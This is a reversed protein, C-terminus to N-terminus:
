KSGGQHTSHPTTSAAPQSIGSPRSPRHCSTVRGPQCLMGSGPPGSAPPPPPAAAHASASTPPSAAPHVEERALPPGKPERPANTGWSEVCVTCSQLTTTLQVVDDVGTGRNSPIASYCADTAGLRLHQGHLGFHLWKPLGDDPLRHVSDKRQQRWLGRSAELNSRLLPSFRELRLSSREICESPLAFRTRERIASDDKPTRSGWWSSRGLRKWHRGTAATWGAATPKRRRSASPM